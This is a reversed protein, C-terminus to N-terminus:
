GQTCVSGNLTFTAPAPNSGSWSSLFGFSATGGNAGIAANWAANTITVNAGSQAYVSSWSQNVVQGNAFTWRLAWGNVAASGTNTIVVDGQFGTNWQNTVTYKVRCSGPM